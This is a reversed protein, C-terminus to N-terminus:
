MLGFMKNFQKRKEIIRDKNIKECTEFCMENIFSIRRFISGQYNIEDKNDLIFKDLKLLIGEITITKDQNIEEVLDRIEMVWHRGACFFRHGCFFLKLSSQFDDGKTYDNLIQLIKEKAEKKSDWM